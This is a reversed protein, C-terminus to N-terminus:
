GFWRRHEAGQDGRYDQYPGFRKLKEIEVRALRENGPSLLYYGGRRHLIPIRRRRRAFHERMQESHAAYGDLEDPWLEFLRDFTQIFERRYEERVLGLSSIVWCTSEFAWDYALGIFRYDS